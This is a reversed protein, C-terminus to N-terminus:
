LRKQLSNGEQTEEPNSTLAATMFANGRDEPCDLDFSIICSAESESESLCDGILTTLM